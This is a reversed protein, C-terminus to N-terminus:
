EIGFELIKNMDLVFIKKAKEDVVFSSVQNWQPSTFQKLFKGQKDIVVIRKLSTDLIYINNTDSSTWIKTASTLEPLVGQLEFFSIKGSTFKSVKGNSSLVYVDGDIALSVGQKIDVGDTIWPVGKDYGTLTQNHKFIQNNMPDLIYLRRNYLGMSQIKGNPTPFSINKQSLSKTTNEFEAINTDGVAFVIKDQEKPVANDGLPTVTDHLQTSLEKNTLSYSYLLTDEKGSTVLVDNIRILTDTKANPNKESFDVLATANVLIMKQLKTLTVALQNKLETSKQEREPSDVPIQKLSTEAEQLLTLARSEDNYLLSAEAANKKEEINSVLRQYYAEQETKAHNIRSMLVSGIFILLSACALFFLIKSLLPLHKFFDKKRQVSNKINRILLSRRGKSNTILIFLNTCLQKIFRVTGSLLLMIGHIGWLLIKGISLLVDRQTNKKQEPSHFNGRKKTEEGQSHSSSSHMKEELFHKMKERTEHFIPPSLTTATEKEQQVLSQLSQVSGHHQDRPKKIIRTEEVNELSQFILGGYSHGSRLQKLVKQIHEVSEETSRTLILQELRDQSFFEEIHPTGIFLSDGTHLDGETLSSFFQKGSHEEPEVINVHGFKGEKSYFLYALPNGHTSFILHFNELVGVFCHIDAETDGLVEQTRRNIFELSLELANKKESNKTNYYSKELDDFIKELEIIEERTGNKIETLAFFYGKQEDHNSPETIHLIVHSKEHDHGEVFFEKLRLIKEHM